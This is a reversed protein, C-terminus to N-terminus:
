EAPEITVTLSASQFQDVYLEAREKHTILLLACGTKHAELTREMADQENLPTLAVITRIVHEVTNKDDNHLLVRFQPLLDPQGLNPRVDPRREPAAVASAGPQKAGPDSM